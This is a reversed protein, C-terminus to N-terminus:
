KIYCNKVVQEVENQVIKVLFESRSKKLTDIIKDYVDMNIQTAISYQMGINYSDIKINTIM